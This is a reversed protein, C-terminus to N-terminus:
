REKPKAWIRAQRDTPDSDRPIHTTKKYVLTTSPHVPVKPYSPTGGISPYPYTTVARDTGQLGGVNPYEHLLEYLIWTKSASWHGPIERDMEYNTRVRIMYITHDNVIRQMAIKSSAQEV